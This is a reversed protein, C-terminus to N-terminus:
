VVPSLHADRTEKHAAVAIQYAALTDLATLQWSFQQARAPGRAVLENRLRDDTLLQEIAAATADADLPDVLLAGDGVVEPLSTAQSVLTPTGCAMAELPPLGFGECLSVYVFGEAANYAYPLLDDPLYGTVIVSDMLGLGEIASQVDFPMGGGGGALVLKHPLDAQRRAQRYACLLNDINKKPELAGVYLLFPGKVGYKTRFEDERAGGYLSRFRPAVGEYTVSIIDPPVGYARILAERSYQSVTLLHDASRAAVESWRDLYERLSPQVLDPRVRFVVDHITAVAACPRVVPLAFTPNHYLDAGLNELLEPLRLQEWSADLMAAPVDIERFNPKDVIAPGSRYQSRTLWFEDADNVCALARVLEQTYRGIGGCGEFVCRCDIAIRMNGNERLIAVRM